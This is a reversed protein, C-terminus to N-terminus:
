KRSIRGTVQDVLRSAVILEADSLSQLNKINSAYEGTKSLPIDSTKWKELGDVVSKILVERDCKEGKFVYAVLLPNDKEKQLAQRMKNKKENDLKVNEAKEVYSIFGEVLKDSSIEGASLSFSIALLMFVVIAFIKM